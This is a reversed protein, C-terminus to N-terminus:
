LWEDYEGVKHATIVTKDMIEADELDYANLSMDSVKEEAEQPSKAYVTVYGKTEANVEVLYEKENNYIM